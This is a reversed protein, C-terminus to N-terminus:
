SEPVPEFNSPIPVRSFREAFVWFNAMKGYPNDAGIFLSNRTVMDPIMHFFENDTRLSYWTKDNNSITGPLALVSLSTANSAASATLTAKVGTSGFFLVTGSPIAIGTTGSLNITTAGASNTGSATIQYTTSARFHYCYNAWMAFGMARCVDHTVLLMEGNYRDSSSFLPYHMSPRIGIETMYYPLSSMSPITAAIGNQVGVIDLYVQKACSAKSGDQTSSYTHMNVGTFEEWYVDTPLDAVSQELGSTSFNEIRVVNLNPVSNGYSFSSCIYPLQPFAARIQPARVSQLYKVVYSFFGWGHGYNGSTGPFGQGGFVRQDPENWEELTVLAPPYLIDPDNLIYATIALAADTNAQADAPDPSRYGYQETSTPADPISCFDGSNITAGLGATVTLSTAGAAVRTQVTATTIITGGRYVLLTDNVSLAIGTSSVSINLNGNENTATSAANANITGIYAGGRIVAIVDGNNIGSHLGWTAVSTVGSSVATKVYFRGIFGSGGRCFCLVSGAPVALSTATVPITTTGSNATGSATITQISYSFSRNPTSWTGGYGNFNFHVVIHMNLAKAAQLMSKLTALGQGWTTSAFRNTGSATAAWDIDYLYRRTEVPLFVPKNPFLTHIEVTNLRLGDFGVEQVEEFRNTWDCGNTIRIM